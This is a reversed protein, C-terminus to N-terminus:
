ARKTTVSKKAPPRKTATANAKVKKVSEPKAAGVAVKLKKKAAPRKAANKRKTKAPKATAKDTVEGADVDIGFIGALDASKLVRDPKAARAVVTAKGAATILETHDVNRLQFFLEPSEDLRAGVGYLVAAIHKCMVAGDPCSCDMAIQRPAPFLGREKSTIIEMVGRSFKGQLLEVLSDIQGSCHGLLEKWRPKELARIEIKVKYISSGCVLATIEGPAIQLDIVSGNRVYTRGRPLRNSFDSYAELNACWAKGWFTRAIARGDIQVPSVVQGKKRLAAVKIAAKNRREAASVYPAWGDYYGGYGAM